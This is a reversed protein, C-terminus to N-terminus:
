LDSLGLKAVREAKAKGPKVITAVLITNTHLQQAAMITGIEEETLLHALEEYSILQKHIELLHMKMMPDKALLAEQLQAIRAIAQQHQPNSSPIDIAGDPTVTITEPTTM